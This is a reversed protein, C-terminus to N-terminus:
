ERESEDYFHTIFWEFADEMQEKSIEIGDEFHYDEVVKSLSNYIKSKLDEM